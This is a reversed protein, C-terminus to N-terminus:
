LTGVSLFFGAQHNEMTKFLTLCVAASTSNYLVLLLATTTTSRM